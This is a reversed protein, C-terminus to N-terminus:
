YLKLGKSRRRDGTVHSFLSLGRQANDRQSRQQTIDSPSSPLLSCLEVRPFTAIARSLRLIFFIFGNITQCQPAKSGTSSAKICAFLAAKLKRIAIMFQQWSSLYQFLLHILLPLHSLLDLAPHALFKWTSRIVSHTESHVRISLVSASVRSGTLPSHIHRCHM